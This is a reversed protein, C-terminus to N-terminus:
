KNQAKRAVVSSYFEYWDDIHKEILYSEADKFAADVIRKRLEPNRILKRLYWWWQLRNSALFGTEGHKICSYPPSDSAVFASKVSASQLYKINSRSKAHDNNRLPGITIHPSIERLREHYVLYPAFSHHLSKGKYNPNHYSFKLNGQTMIVVNPYRNGLWSLVPSIWKFDALHSDSCSYLIRVENDNERPEYEFGPDYERRLLCNILIKVENESRGSEAMMRQKLYECSTQLYDASQLYFKWNEKAEQPTIKFRDLIHPPLNAFDDDYDIVLPVGSAKIKKILEFQQPGLLCQMLIMDAWKLQYNLENSNMPQIEALGRNKLEYIANLMRHHGTAEGDSANFLIKM